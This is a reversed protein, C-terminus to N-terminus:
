EVTRTLSASKAHHAFFDRQAEGSLAAPGTLSSLPAIEYDKTVSSVRAAPDYNEVLGDNTFENTLLWKGAQGVLVQSDLQKATPKAPDDIETDLIIYNVTEIRDVLTIRRGTYIQRWISRWYEPGNKKSKTIAELARRSPEDWCQLWAEYDGSRMAAYFATLSGEPTDHTAAARSLIPLTVPPAYNSQAYNYVYQVTFQGQKRPTAPYLPAPLAASYARQSLQRSSLPVQVTNSPAASPASQGPPPPAQAPRVAQAYVPIGAAFLLLSAAVKRLSSSRGNQANGQM